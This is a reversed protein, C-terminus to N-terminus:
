HNKFDSKVDVKIRDNRNALDWATYFVLRTIKEMKQFNIKDVTDTPKHYDEHVGNFYFIVPINNKAFNYHDSRYYFRNPDNPENYTYDLKLNIYNSNASESIAHLETSLKNSGILYIYNPDDAYKKDLRGIMDINLNAVTNQLPLVPHSTYYESGLLGKEEGSVTMFLLSRRPGHGEKKATMMAEALEMVAVTGSGDDDAGYYIVKGDTGLHDYHATIVIVENKLDSGEVYGLVNEATINEKDRTINISLSTKVPFSLTKGTSNLEKYIKKIKKEQLINNAVEESIYLVPLSKERKSGELKVFPNEIFHKQKLVNKKFDKVVVLLIKVGSERAAEMKRRWSNSWESTEKTGTIISAGDKTPEGGLVMVVKNKVDKQQYDDYKSDKIGYGLFTVEETTTTIDNFGPFFYFDKYFQYKKNNVTINGTQPKQLSLPYKQYYTSDGLAPIGFKKFNESIYAAALKQGKKGTERGEFEDSAIKHLHKSLDEAKITAAYRVAISDKGTAICFLPLLLILNLFYHKKM